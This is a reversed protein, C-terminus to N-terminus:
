HEEERFAKGCRVCIRLRLDPLLLLSVANAESNMMMVARTNPLLLSRPEAVEAASEMTRSPSYTSLTWRVYM